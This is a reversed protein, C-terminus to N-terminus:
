DGDSAGGNGNNGGGNNGGGGAGNGRGNGGRQSARESANGRSNGPGADSGGPSANGSSGNNSATDPGRDPTSGTGGSTGSGNSGGGSGAASSEAANGGVNGTPNNPESVQPRQDPSPASAAPSTQQATGRQPRSSSNGRPVDRPTTWGSITALFGRRPEASPAIVIERPAPQTVAPAPAPAAAVVQPPPAASAPVTGALWVELTGVAPQPRFGTFDRAPGEIQGAIREAAAADQPHYYRVHSQTIVFGVGAPDNVAYGSTRLRAAIDRLADAGVSPPAHVHVRIDSDPTQTPVITATQQPTEDARAVPEMTGALELAAHARLMEAMAALRRDEESAASPAPVEPAAAAPSTVLTDPRQVPRVTPHPAPPQTAAALRSDQPPPADPLAPFAVMVPRQAPLPHSGPSPLAHGADSPIRPADPMQQATTQILPPHPPQNALTPPIERSPAPARVFAPMQPRAQAAAAPRPLDARPIDPLAPLAATTEIRPAPQATLPPELVAPLPAPANRPLPSPQLVVSQAGATSDQDPAREQGHMLLPAAIAPVAATAAATNERDPAQPTSRPPLSTVPASVRELGVSPASIKATDSARDPEPADARSRLDSTEARAEGQTLQGSPPPAFAETVMGPLRLRMDSAAIALGGGLSAIVTVSLLLAQRNGRKPTAARPQAVPAADTDILGATDPLNLPPVPTSSAPTDSTPNRRSMPRLQQTGGIDLPGAASRRAHTGIAGSGAPGTGPKAQRPRREPKAQRAWQSWETSNLYGADDVATKDTHLGDNIRQAASSQRAPRTPRDAGPRPTKTM